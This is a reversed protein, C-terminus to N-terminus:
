MHSGVAAIAIVVLGILLNLGVIKRIQGISKLGAETGGNAVTIKLRRFPAFYVHFFLLMMLIGLGIMLHIYLPLHMGGFVKFVMWFGSALILAIALWVWRFFRELTAAWLAPRKAPEVTQGVAPRMAMYAYFMGGVWVVVSLLHLTVAIAFSM